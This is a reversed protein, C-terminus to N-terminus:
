SMDIGFLAYEPHEVMTVTEIRVETVAMPSRAKAEQVERVATEMGVETFIMPNKAKEPQVERVETEMGVETVAM